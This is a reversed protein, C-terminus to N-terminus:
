VMVDANPTWVIDPIRQLRYVTVVKRAMSIVHPAETGDTIQRDGHAAGESEVLCIIARAQVGFTGLHDLSQSASPNHYPMKALMSSCHIVTSIWSRM